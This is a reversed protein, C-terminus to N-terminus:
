NNQDLMITRDSSINSFSFVEMKTDGAALVSGRDPDGDLYFQYTHSEYGSNTIEINIVVSAGKELTIEWSSGSTGGTFSGSATTTTGFDYTNDNFTITYSPIVYGSQNLPVNINSSDSQYSDTSGSYDSTQTQTLKLNGERTSTSSNAGATVSTGSVSFGAGSSIRGSYSPWTSWSGASEDTLSGNTYTLTIPRRRSTVTVSQTGGDASFSLSTPRVSFEYQYETKTTITDKKSQSLSATATKSSDSNHTVTLTGSRGSTESSNASATVTVNNNSKSYSFGAGSINVNYSGPSSNTWSGWVVPSGTGTRYEPDVTFVKPGGSADWSASTPDISIRYEYDVNANQTLTISDSTYANSASLTGSRSSTGTNNSTPGVTSGSISFSGTVSSTASINTYSFSSWDSWDSWTWNNGGDTSTGTRHRSSTGRRSDM